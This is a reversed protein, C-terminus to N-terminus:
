TKKFANVWDSLDQDVGVNAFITQHINSAIEQAFDDFEHMRTLRKIWFQGSLDPGYGNAGFNIWNHPDLPALYAGTKEHWFMLAGSANWGEELDQNVINTYSTLFSKDCTVFDEHPPEKSNYGRKRKADIYIREKKSKTKHTLRFDPYKNNNQRYTDFGLIDQVHEVNYNSYTEPLANMLYNEWMRGMKLSLHFRKTVSLQSENWYQKM